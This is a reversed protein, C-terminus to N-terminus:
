AGGAMKEPVLFTVAVPFMRAQPNAFRARVRQLKSRGKQPHKRAPTMEAVAKGQFHSPNTGMVKEYQAQTVEFAGLSYDKSITVEHQREDHDPGKESPPSGMQFTGNPILVLKMRISNSIEKSAQAMVMGATGMLLTCAVLFTMLLHLKRM